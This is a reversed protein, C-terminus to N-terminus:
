RKGDGSAQRLIRDLMSTSLLRRLFGFLYTPLTVYYRPQPRKSELAHVVKKLVAEPPLTFPVADGKKKLRGLMAQYEDSHASNDYDINELFKKLANKRFRSRIPGPEILSVHIGFQDVELRLAEMAGELAFKSACYMSQYPLGVIGALSSINIIKGSGRRRMAPLVARTVRLVGFFNTEFQAKAEDLSSEELAGAIAVGANNVLVDLRGEKDVIYGVARNVSQENHVDMHIMNLGADTLQGVTDNHPETGPVPARRSTGYVTYGAEALHLACVRGIGTSAGTVLAVPPQTDLNEM